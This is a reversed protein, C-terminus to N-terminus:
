EQIQEDRESGEMKNKEKRQTRILPFPSLALTIIEMRFVKKNFYTKNNRLPSRSYHFFVILVRAYKNSQNNRV